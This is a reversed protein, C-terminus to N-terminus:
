NDPLKNRSVKGLASGDECVTRWSRWSGVGKGGAGAGARAESRRTAEITPIDERAGGLVRNLHNETNEEHKRGSSAIWAHPTGPVLDVRLSWRARRGNLVVDLEAEVLIELHEIWGGM